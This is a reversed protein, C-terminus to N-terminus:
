FTVMYQTFDGKSCSLRMGSTATQWRKVGCLESNLLHLNINGLQLAQEFAFMIRYNFTYSFPSFFFFDLGLVTGYLPILFGVGAAKM